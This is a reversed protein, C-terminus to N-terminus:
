KQTADLHEVYVVLPIINGHLRQALDNSPDLVHLLVLPLPLHHKLITYLRLVLIRHLKTHSHFATQPPKSLPQLFLHGGGGRNLLICSVDDRRSVGPKMSIDVNTRGHIDATVDLDSVYRSRRLVENGWFGCWEGRGDVRGGVEVVVFCGDDVEGADGVLDGV